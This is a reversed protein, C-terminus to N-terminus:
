EGMVNQVACEIKSLMEGSDIWAVISMDEEELYRHFASERGREVLLVYFNDSRNKTLVARLDNDALRGNLSPTAYYGWEKRVVDYELNNATLFTVQENASLQVTGCDSIEVMSGRGVLFKRPSKNESIKMQRDGM